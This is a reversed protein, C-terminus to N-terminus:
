SHDAVLDINNAPPLFRGLSFNNEDFKQLASVFKSLIAEPVRYKKFCVLEILPPSLYDYLFGLIKFVFDQGCRVSIASVRFTYPNDDNARVTPHFVINAYRFENCFSGSFYNYM